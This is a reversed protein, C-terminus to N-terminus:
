DTDSFMETFGVLQDTSAMAAVFPHERPMAIQLRCQFGESVMDHLKRGGRVILRRARRVVTSPLYVRDDILKVITAFWDNIGRMQELAEASVKEGGCCNDPGGGGSYCRLWGAAGVIARSDAPVVAEPVGVQAAAV